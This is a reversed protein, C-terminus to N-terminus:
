LGHTEIAEKMQRLQCPKAQGKKSQLNVSPVAPNDHTFIHHSGGTRTLSWECHRALLCADSYSWNTVNGALLKGKLKDARV